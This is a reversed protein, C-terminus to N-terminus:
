SGARVRLASGASRRACSTAPVGPPTPVVRACAPWSCMALIKQQAPHSLELTVGPDVINLSSVVPHIGATTTDAIIAVYEAVGRARASLDDRQQQDFYAGMRNIVLAAVLAVTVAVVAVFAGTLRAQFTHPIFRDASPLRM